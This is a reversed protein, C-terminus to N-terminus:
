SRVLENPLLTGAQLGGLTILILVVYVLCGGLLQRELTISFLSLVVTPALSRVICGCMQALGNTAGLSAKNPASHIVFLHACGTMIM